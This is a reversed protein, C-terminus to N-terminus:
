AIRRTNEARDIGSFRAIPSSSREQADEWGEAYGEQRGAELGKRYSERLIAATLIANPTPYEPEDRRMNIKAKAERGLDNDPRFWEGRIRLHAYRKHLTNELLVADARTDCLVRRRVVLDEPSNTRVNSIRSATGRGIKIPGGWDAQIFYVWVHKDGGRREQREQHHLWYDVNGTSTKYADAIERLLAGNERMKIALPLWYPVTSLRQERSPSKSSGM